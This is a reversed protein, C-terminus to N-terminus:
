ICKMKELSKEQSERLATGKIKSCSVTSITPHLGTAIVLTGTSVVTKQSINETLPQTHM